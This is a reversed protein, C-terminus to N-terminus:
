IIIQMFNIQFQNSAIQIAFGFDMGDDINDYCCDYPDNIHNSVSLDDGAYDNVNSENNNNQILDNNSAANM